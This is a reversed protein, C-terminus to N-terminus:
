PMSPRLGILTKAKLMTSFTPKSPRMRTRLLVEEYAAVELLKMAPDSELFADYEPCRRSFEACLRSFIQDYSITEFLSESM